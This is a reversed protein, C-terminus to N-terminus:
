SPFAHPYPGVGGGAARGNADAARDIPTQLLLHLRRPSLYKRECPSSAFCRTSLSSSRCRSILVFVPFPAPVPLAYKETVDRLNTEAADLEEELQNVKKTLSEAQGRSTEGAEAVEKHSTLKAETDELQAELVQVQHELSAIQQESKLNNHELDKVKAESEEARANAADCETRLSNLKERIRDMTATPPHAPAVPEATRSPPPEPSGSSPRQAFRGRPRRLGVCQGPAARGM